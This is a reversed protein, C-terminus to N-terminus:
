ERHSQWSIPAASRWVVGRARDERRTEEGESRCSAAREGGGAVVSRTDALEGSVLSCPACSDIAPPSFLVGWWSAPFSPLGPAGSDLLQPGCRTRGWGRDPPPVVSQLQGGLSLMQASDGSGAVAGDM